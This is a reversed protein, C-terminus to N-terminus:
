VTSEAYSRSNRFIGNLFAFARKGIGELGLDRLKKYKEDFVRANHVGAILDDALVIKDGIPVNLYFEKLITLGTNGTLAMSDNLVKDVLASIFYNDKGSHPTLRGAFGLIKQTDRYFGDIMRSTINVPRNKLSIGLTNRSFVFPTASLPNAAQFARRPACCRWLTEAVTFPVVISKYRKTREEQTKGKELTEPVLLISLKLREVEAASDLSHRSLAVEINHLFGDLKVNEFLPLRQPNATKILAATNISCLHHNLDDLPIIKMKENIYILVRYFIEKEEISLNNTAISHQTQSNKTTLPTYIVRTEQDTKKEAKRLLYNVLRAIHEIDTQKLSDSRNLFDFEPINNLIEQASYKRILTCFNIPLNDAMEGISTKTGYLLCLLKGAGVMSRFDYRPFMIKLISDDACGLQDLWAPIGAVTHIKEKNEMYTSSKKLLSQYAVQTEDYTSFKLIKKRESIAATKKSPSYFKGYIEFHSFQCPPIAPKKKTYFFGSMGPFEFCKKGLADLFVKRIPDSHTRPRGM